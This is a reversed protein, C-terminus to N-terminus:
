QWNNLEQCLMKAYEKAGERNLHLPDAYLRYEKILMSHDVIVTPVCERVAAILRSHAEEDILYPGIVCCYKVGRKELEALLRQYVGINMANPASQVAASAKEMASQAYDANLMGSNVWDQDSRGIYNAVRLLMEGNCSFAHSFRALGGIVADNGIDLSTLRDSYGSFMRLERIPNIDQWLNSVEMVVMDPMKNRDLYDLLVAEVLRPGMGNYGLNYWKKGLLRSVEPAYFSNVARSNGVVVVDANIPSAVYLRAFRFGSKSAVGNAIWGIALDLLVVSGVACLLFISIKKM